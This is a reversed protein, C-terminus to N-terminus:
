CEIYTFYSCHDVLPILECIRYDLSLLYDSECISCTDKSRYVNCSKILIEVAKCKGDEMYYDKQCASCETESSYLVCNTQPTAKLCKKTQPNLFYNESCILCEGALDFKQCHDSVFKECIGNKLAYKQEVDCILWKKSSNCLLCGNSCAKLTNILM